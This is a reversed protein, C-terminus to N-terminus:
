AATCIADMVVIPARMVEHSVPARGTRLAAIFRDLVPALYDSGLTLDGSWSSGAAVADARFVIQRGESPPVFTLMTLVQRIRVEAVTSDGSRSVAVRLESLADTGLVELAAKVHHIGSFYLGSYPSATDAPGSVHLSRLARSSRVWRAVEDTQPTFRLASASYLLTNAGRATALIADADDISAALPKDVLVPIGAALLPEAQARHLAGDRSCVIVADVLGILDAANDVIQGIGGTEALAIAREGTGGALASLRFPPHRQERNLLRIFHEAHSNEVGILGINPM